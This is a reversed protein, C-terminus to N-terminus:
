DKFASRRVQLLCGSNTRDKCEPCHSCYVRYPYETDFQTMLQERKPTRAGGCCSPCPTFYSPFTILRYLWERDQTYRSAAFRKSGSGQMMSAFGQQQQQQHAPASYQTEASSGCALPSSSQSGTSNLQAAVATGASNTSVPPSALGLTVSSPGEQQAFPSSSALGACGGHINQNGETLMM